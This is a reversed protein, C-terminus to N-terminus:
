VRWGVGMECGRCHLGEDRGRGEGRGEFRV